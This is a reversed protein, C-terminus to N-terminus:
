AQDEGLALDPEEDLGSSDKHDPDIAQIRFFYKSGAISGIFNLFAYTLAFDIFM